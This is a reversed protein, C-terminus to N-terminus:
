PWDLAEIEEADRFGGYYGAQRGRAYESKGHDVLSEWIIKRAEDSIPQADLFVRLDDVKM